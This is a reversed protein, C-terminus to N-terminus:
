SAVQEDEFLEDIAVDLAKAIRAVAEATPVHEGTEASIVTRRQVGALDALEQQTLQAKARAARLNQGQFVTM